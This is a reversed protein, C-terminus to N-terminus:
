ENEGMIVSMRVWLTQKNLLTQGAFVIQFYDPNVNMKNAIETKVRAVDWDSYVKIVVSGGQFNKVNVDFSEM